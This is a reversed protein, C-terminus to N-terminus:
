HGSKLLHIVKSVSAKDGSMNLIPTHLCPAVTKQFYKMTKLPKELFYCKTKPNLATLSSNRDIIKLFNNCWARM